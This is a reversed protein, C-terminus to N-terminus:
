LKRRTILNSIIEEAILKPNKKLRKSLIMAANCSLDGHADSKPSDLTFEVESLYNLKKSAKNIIELLYKKL